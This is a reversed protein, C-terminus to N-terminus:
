NPLPIQISFIIHRRSYWQYFVNFLNWNWIPQFDYRYRFRGSGLNVTGKEINLKTTHDVLRNGISWNLTAPSNSVHFRVFASLIKLFIIQINTIYFNNTTNAFIIFILLLFNWRFRCKHNYYYKFLRVYPLDNISLTRFASISTMLSILIIQLAPIYLNYHCNNRVWQSCISKFLRVLIM